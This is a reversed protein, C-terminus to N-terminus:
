NNKLNSLFVDVERNNKFIYVQKSNDINELKQLIVPRKKRRFTAVYSFFEYDLKEICGEAVDERQKNRFQFRRKIIRFLTTSTPFDLFLVTDAQEIRMEMTRNYNGDIIWYKKQMIIKLDKDFGNRNRIVWNPNFFLIDLHYVKIDPLKSMKKALTSKGAGCNGIIIIKQM